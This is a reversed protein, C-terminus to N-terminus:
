HAPRSSVTLCALVAPAASDEVQITFSYSGEQIPTGSLLGTTPGLSLGLPLEGDTVSWTYPPDGGSAEFQVAYVQGVNGNPVSETTIALRPPEIAAELTAMATQQQVYTSDAVRVTVTYDDARSPIGKVMGSAADLSLGPPLEGFPLSWTYPKAGGTAALQAEYPQGVTGRPLVTTTVELPGSREKPTIVQLQGGGAGCSVMAAVLLALALLLPAVRRTV